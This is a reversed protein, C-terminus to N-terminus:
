NNASMPVVQATWGIMVPGPRPISSFVTAGVVGVVFGPLVCGLLLANQTGTDSSMAAPIGCGLLMGFGVSLAAISVAPRWDDTTKGFRPVLHIDAGHESLDFAEHITGSGSATLQVQGSPMRLKCPNGLSVEHDCNTTGGAGELAVRFRRGAGATILVPVENGEVGGMEVPRKLADTATHFFEEAKGRFASVLSQISKGALEVSSLERDGAFVRLTAELGRKTGTVVGTVVMTAQSEHAVGLICARECEETLSINSSRLVRQTDESTLVSYGQPAVISNAADRVAESLPKSQIHKRNPGTAVVPVVIVSEPEEALVLGPALFVLACLALPTRLM